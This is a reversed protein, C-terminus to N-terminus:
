GGRGGAYPAACPAYAGADRACLTCGGAEDLMFLLACRMGELMELADLVVELRSWCVDHVNGVKWQHTAYCM